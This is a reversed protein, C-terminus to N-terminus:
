VKARANINPDTNIKTTDAPDFAAEPRLNSYGVSCILDGRYNLLPNKFFFVGAAPLVLGQKGKLDNILAARLTKIQSIGAEAAKKLEAPHTSIDGLDNQGYKLEPDTYTTLIQLGGDDVAELDLTM